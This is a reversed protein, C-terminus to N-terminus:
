RQQGDGRFFLCKSKFVHILRANGFVSNVFSQTTWQAEKVGFLRENVVINLQDEVSEMLIVGSSSRLLDNSYSGRVPTRIQAGPVLRAPSTAPWTVFRPCIVILRLPTRCWACLTAQSSCWPTQGDAPISWSSPLGPCLQILFRRSAVWCTFLMFLHRRCSEDVFTVPTEQHLNALRHRAYMLTLLFGTRM